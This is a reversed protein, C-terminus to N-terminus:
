VAFPGGAEEFDNRQNQDISILPVASNSVLDDLMPEGYEYFAHGTANKLIVWHIREIESLWLTQQRGYEAVTM